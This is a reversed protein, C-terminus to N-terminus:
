VAGEVRRKILGLHRHDFVGSAGHTGDNFVAFLEVVEQINADAFAAVPDSARGARALNYALKSRRTPRGEYLPAAPNWALVAEDPADVEIITALM